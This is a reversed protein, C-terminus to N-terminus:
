GLISYVVKSASFHRTKLLKLKLNRISVYRDGALVKPALNNERYNVKLGIHSFVM